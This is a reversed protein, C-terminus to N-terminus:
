RRDLAGEQLLAVLIEEVALALEHWNDSARACKKRPRRVVYVRRRRMCCGQAGSSGNAPSHASSSKWPSRERRRQYGARRSLSRLEIM